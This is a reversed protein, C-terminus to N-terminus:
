PAVIQTSPLLFKALCLGLQVLEFFWQLVMSVRQSHMTRGQSEVLLRKQSVFMRERLNAIFALNALEFVLMALFGIMLRLLTVSMLFQFTMMMKHHCM